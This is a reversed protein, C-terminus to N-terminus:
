SESIMSVLKTMADDCMQVQQKALRQESAKAPRITFCQFHGTRRELAGVLRFCVFYTFSITSHDIYAHNM